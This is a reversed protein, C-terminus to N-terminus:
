QFVLSAYTVFSGGPDVQCHSHALLEGEQGKLFHLLTYLCPFGCIKRRDQESAIYSSFGEPDGNMVFTLMELDHAKIREVLGPDPTVDDGYRPGIHALDVSAILCVRRGTAEAAAKLGHVFKFVQEDCTGGQGGTTSLDLYSFSALVPFIKFRHSALAHQLFLLQFEITHEVRHSLEEGFVGPGVVREFSDAFETDVESTGLPTEFDKVCVSFCNQVGLHGTGLIVFLEPTESEALRRYTHTYTPGGLRLDIHPAVLARVSKGRSAAPVGAGEASEYFSQLLERLESVEAPYSSGALHAPRLSQTKFREALESRRKRFTENDLFHAKDLLDILKEVQERFVIQGSLRTLITQIDLVSNTGDFLTLLQYVQPNLVLTEEGIQEPDRLLVLTKGEEVHPFAELPRLKPYTENM